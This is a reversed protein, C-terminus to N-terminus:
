PAIAAGATPRKAWDTGLGFRATWDIFLRIEHDGGDVVTVAESARGGATSAGATVTHDGVSAEFQFYGLADTVAVLEGDLFIPIGEVGIWVDSSVFGRIRGYALPQLHVTFSAPLGGERIVVVESGDAYGVASVTITYSGPALKTFQNWCGISNSTGALDAIRIEAGAIPDGTKADFVCVSLLLPARPFCGGLVAGVVLSAAVLLLRTSTRRM